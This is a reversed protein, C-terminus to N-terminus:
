QRNRLNIDLGRFCRCVFSSSRRTWRMSLTPLSWSWPITPVRWSLYVTADYFNQNEISVKIPPYNNDRQQSRRSSCSAAVVLLLAVLGFAPLRKM